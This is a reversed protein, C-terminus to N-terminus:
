ISTRLLGPIEMQVSWGNPNNPYPFSDFERIFASIAISLVLFPCLKAIFYGTIIGSLWVYLV